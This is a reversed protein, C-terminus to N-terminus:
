VNSIGLITESAKLMLAIVEDLSGSVSAGSARSHGGGGLLAAIDNAPIKDRTRFSVKYQGTGEEIILSAIRCERVIRIQDIIGETHERRAGADEFMKGTIFSYVIRGCSNRRLNSLAFGLLKQRSFPHGSELERRIAGVRAGHEYLSAAVAHTIANTNSYRFYGTDTVVATLVATAIDTNVKSPDIHCMLDYLLSGTSEAHPNVVLIDAAIPEPRHHDIVVRWAGNGTLYRELNGTRDLRGLDLFFVLDGEMPGSDGPPEHPYSEIMGRPDLFRYTEPVVSELVVRPKKGLAGLFGALATVSGVADGDPNVHTSIYLNDARDLLERIREWSHTNDPYYAM